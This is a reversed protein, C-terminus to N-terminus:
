KRKLTFRLPKGLEKELKSLKRELQKHSKELEALRGKVAAESASAPPRGRRKAPAAAAAAAKRPRGPGRRKAVAAAKKPPRGRGRGSEQRLRNFVEVAEPLFRRARGQGQHPIARLHSKVYRLLTPYSIGTSKSIQTLTLLNGGSKPAAKAAAKKRRGRKAPAQAAPAAKKAAARKKTSGRPRGRRGINEQKLELFVALAEEPYRQSRGAGVSPIRDQYLKKYRQLTPMSIKSRSSVETLTYLKGSEAESM